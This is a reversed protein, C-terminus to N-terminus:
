CLMRNGVRRCETQVWMSPLIAVMAMPLPASRIRTVGRKHPAPVLTAAMAAVPAVTAPRKAQMPSVALALGMTVFVCISRM